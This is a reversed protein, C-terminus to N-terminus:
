QFNLYKQEMLLSLLANEAFYRKYSFQTYFQLEEHFYM